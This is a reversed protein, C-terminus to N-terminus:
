NSGSVGNGDRMEAHKATRENGQRKALEALGSVDLILGVKGDPMIAGGVVGSVPDFADGLSKIVTQQQGLVEDVVLALPKDENKLVVIVREARDDAADSIDFLTNLSFLPVLSDQVRLMKGKSFVTSSKAENARLLREVSTTPIVFRQSGCRLVMGDIIALTLPLRMSFVTGKGLSSRIDIQGRLNQVSRRVVDMGVGRGSVDTVESATSFGPEFILNWVDRDELSDGDSVMGREIAKAIIAERNLGRGDDEIEVYINGGKHFARLEIKGSASKGADLRDEPTDELGHDVANRVMHVLPDGIKDVLTKDLETEEGSISFEIRKGSRKSLDRVLRAMRQFTQRLPVMRLTMGLEQLERTIKDLQGLHRELKPSINAQLEPSLSVMSEAIVLEGIIDVLSNLREADVKLSEKVQIPRKRGEMQVRLAQAVEQAEAKGSNVLMEGLKPKAAAGDQKDLAAAIEPETAVGNAVLIEGVRGLSSDAKQREISEDIEARTAVNSAVLSEGLKQTSIGSEQKALVKEITNSNVVGHEVLIDGLPEGPQLASDSLDGEKPKSPRSMVDRLQAILGLVVSDPRLPESTKLSKEVAEVLRKLADSTDLVIDLFLLDVPLAEAIKSILLREAEQSLASIDPLTFLTSKERIKRFGRRITEFAEGSDPCTELSLLQVDIAKLHESSEIMADRILDPDGMDEPNVDRPVFKQESEPRQFAQILDTPPPPAAGKGACANFTRELWDKMKLLPEVISAVSHKEIADEAVHCLESAQNFGLLATEGKLTHVVRHFAELDSQNAEVDLALLLGEFAELVPGQRALFESVMAEDIYPTSAAPIKLATAGPRAAEEMPEAPDPDSESTKARDLRIERLPQAEILATRYSEVVHSLSECTEEPKPDDELIIQEVADAMALCNDAAECEEDARFRESIEQLQTHVESLAEVDDVSTAALAFGLREILGITGHAPVAAGETAKESTQLTEAVEPRIEKLQGILLSSDVDPNHGNSYAEFAGTLWDKVGLLPDVLALSACEALVDEVAHCLVEVERLGLLGAEGKLTHVLRRIGDVIEKSEGRELELVQSELEDMVSSQRAIFDSFISDDINSPPAFTVATEQGNDSHRLNLAAPLDAPRLERGDRLVAQLISVGENVVGLTQAPDKSKEALIDEVLLSVADVVEKQFADEISTALDRLKLHVDTLGDKDDADAFVLAECVEEIKSEVESRSM